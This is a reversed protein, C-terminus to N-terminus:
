EIKKHDNKTEKYIIKAIKSLSAKRFKIGSKFIFYPLWRSIEANMEKYQSPKGVNFKRQDKVEDKKVFIWYKMLKKHYNKEKFHKETEKLAEKKNNYKKEYIAYM